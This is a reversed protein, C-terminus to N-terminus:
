EFDLVLSSGHDSAAAWFTLAEGSLGRMVSMEVCDKRWGM